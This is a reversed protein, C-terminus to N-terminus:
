RIKKVHSQYQYKNHEHNGIKKVLNSFNQQKQTANM